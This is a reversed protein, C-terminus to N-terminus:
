FVVAKRLATSKDARRKRRVSDMRVRRERERERERRVADANRGKREEQEREGLTVECFGGSEWKRREIMMERTSSLRRLSASVDGCACM